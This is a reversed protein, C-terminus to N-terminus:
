FEENKVVPMATTDSVRPVPLVIKITSDAKASSSAEQKLVTQKGGKQLPTRTVTKEQKKLQKGSTSQAAAFGSIVAIFAAALIVRKM